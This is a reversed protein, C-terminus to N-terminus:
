GPLHREGEHAFRHARVEEVDGFLHTGSYSQVCGGGEPWAIQFALLVEHVGPRIDGRLAREVLIETRLEYEDARQSPAGDWRLVVHVPFRCIEEDSLFAPGTM